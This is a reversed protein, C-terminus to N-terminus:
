SNFGLLPATFQIQSGNSLTATALIQFASAHTVGSVLLASKAEATSIAADVQTLETPLTYAVSMLTLGTPLVGSWRVECYTPTDPDVLWVGGLPLRISRSDAVSPYPIYGSVQVGPSFGTLILQNTVPRSAFAQVLSPSAGAISVAAVTPTRAHSIGVNPAIGVLSLGGSFPSISGLVGVGVIQGAISLSGAAPTITVTSAVLPAIGTFSVAGVIPTRVWQQTVAPAVGTLALAGVLPTRSLQQTVGAAIGTLVLSGANPTVTNGGSGLSVTPAIGTLSLAGAVPPPVGLDQIVGGQTIVLSGVSPAVTLQQTVAPAIGNLALSGVVPTRFAQQTAVPAIGTLTLGGTTPTRGTNSSGSNAVSPAVGTLSLSGVSPIRYAQQTVVPSIGTLALAGTTPARVTGQTALAAVGALALAGVAAIRAFNTSPQATVGTVSISGASPTITTNSGGGGAAAAIEVAVDVGGALGASTTWDVTTSTSGTRSQCQGFVWDTVGTEAIETFGGSGGAGLTQTGGNSALTICALTISDSLPAQALTFSTSTSEAQDVTDKGVTRFPTSAHEGDIEWVDVKWYAATNAATFSMAATLSESSSGATKYLLASAYGWGPSSGSAADRTGDTVLTWGSASLNSGLQADINNCMVEVYAILRKGSTVAFSGTANGSVNYTGTYRKTISVAM